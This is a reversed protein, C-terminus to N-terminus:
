EIAQDTRNAPRESNPNTAYLHGDETLAFSRLGRPLPSSVPVAVLIFRDAVTFSFSSERNYRFEYVNKARCNPEFIPMNPPYGEALHKQKFNVLTAAIGRLTSIAGAEASPTFESHRYFLCLGLAPLILVIRGVKGSLVFVLLWGLGAGLVLFKHENVYCRDTLLVVVVVLLVFLGVLAWPWRTKV